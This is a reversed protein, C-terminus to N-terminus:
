AGGSVAVSSLAPVVGLLHHSEACEALDALRQVLVASEDPPLAASCARDFLVRADEIEATDHVPAPGTPLDVFLAVEPKPATDQGDEVIAPCELLTFGCPVGLTIERQTPVVRLEVTDWASVTALHRLQAVRVEADGMPQHLVSEAVVAVVRLPNEANTLRQQRVRLAELHNDWLRPGFQPHAARILGRAYAEIHLLDPIRLPAMVRARSADTEMGIYGRDRIGFARWWGPQTAERVLDLFGADRIDYVDLMSLAVHITIRTEATEVRGLASRTMELKRAAEELSLDARQRLYRARAAVRRQILTPGYGRRVAPM